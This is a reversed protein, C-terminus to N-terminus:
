TKAPSWDSARDLLSQPSPLTKFVVLHGFIEMAVNLHLVFVASRDKDPKTHCFSLARAAEYGICLMILSSCESYHM